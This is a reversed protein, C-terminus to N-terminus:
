TLLLYNAFKPIIMQLKDCDLIMAGMCILTVTIQIQGPIPLQSRVETFSESHPKGCALLKSKRDM